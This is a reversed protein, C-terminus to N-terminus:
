CVCVGCCLQLHTYKCAHILYALPVNLTTETSVQHVEIFINLPFLLQGIEIYSNIKDLNM